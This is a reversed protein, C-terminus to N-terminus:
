FLLDYETYFFFVYIVFIYCFPTSSIVLQRIALNNEFADGSLSLMTRASGADHVDRTNVSYLVYSVSTM